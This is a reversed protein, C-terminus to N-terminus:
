AGGRRAFRGEILAYLARMGMAEGGVPRGPRAKPNWGMIDMHIWPREASVFRELFLAATVAGAHPGDSINNLDAVKSDLTQRYPAWLPMRWMPDEVAAAHSLLADAVGDVNCFLAPLDPGLAVRAAGTLTACDVILAPKERDAEALADCLVLRGEADTNGIEVTLGKRTRIVDGPRMADGGVSNEVAPILVRLRVGLGAGMIMAALGLTQAAGGMDKKMLRMGTSSKLDLGGSDFCVGKGVLTVRPDRAGGWRLDILCPPRASARGVAHIAPYGRALLKDGQIVAVKAGHARALRRAARALDAPGMENAPATILDRVLTTATAARAVQGRDAGRPWVLVPAPGGTRGGHRYRYAGLAWGLAARGAAAGDLAADIRYSGAPLKAPLGALNWLAGHSEVGVLVRGLRGGAGPVLRVAGPAAGYATSAAWARAEDTQDALWGELEARTLPTVPVTARTAKDRFIQPLHSRGPRHRPITGLM